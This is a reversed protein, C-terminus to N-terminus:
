FKVRLGANLDAQTFLGNSVVCNTGQCFVDDNKPIETIYARMEIRLGINKTFKYVAGGGFSMSFRTRSSVGSLDPALQTIGFGGGFFTDYSGEDWILSGGIHLYSIDVDFLSANGSTLRTPQRTYM